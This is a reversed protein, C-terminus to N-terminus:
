WFVMLVMVILVLFCISSFLVLLVVFLLMFCDGRSWSVEVLVMLGVKVMLGSGRFLMRCMKGSGLLCIRVLLLKVINLGFIMVCFKVRYLKLLVSLLFKELWILLFVLLSNWCVLLWMRIVLFFILRFLFGVEVRRSSLM